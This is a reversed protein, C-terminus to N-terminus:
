EKTDGENEDFVLEEYSSLIQTCIDDVASGDADNLLLDYQNVISVFTGDNINNEKVYIDYGISNFYEKVKLANDHSKTICLYSHFGDDEKDYIYYKFNSMNDKMSELDSYVGHQLFFLSESGYYTSIVEYDDYQNLMFKGLYVGVVLSCFLSWFYKKMYDGDDNYLIFFLFFTLFLLNFLCKSIVM